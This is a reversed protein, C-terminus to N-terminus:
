YETINYKETLEKILIESNYTRNTMPYNSPILRISLSITPKYTYMTGTYSKLTKSKKDLVEFFEFGNEKTLVASRLLAYDAAVKPTVDANGSFKVQFTNKEELAWDRYGGSLGFSQYPTALCGGLLLTVAFLLYKM